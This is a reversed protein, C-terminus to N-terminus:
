KLYEPMKNWNRTLKQDENMNKNIKLGQIGLICM